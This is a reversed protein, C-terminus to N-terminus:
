QEGTALRARDIEEDFMKACLNQTFVMVQYAVSRESGRYSNEILNQLDNFDKPTTCMSIEKLPNQVQNM